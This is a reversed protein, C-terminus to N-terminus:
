YTMRWSESALRDAVLTGEFESRRTVTVAEGADQGHLIVESLVLGSEALIKGWHEYTRAQANLMALMALDLQTEFRHAKVDLLAIDDILIVSKDHMAARIHRLITRCSEDPRMTAQHTIFERLDLATGPLDQLIVRGQLDPYMSKLLKCQQGLGGGVDVFFVAGLRDQERLVSMLETAAKEDLWTRVGIRHAGMFDHFYQSNTPHHQLWEYLTMPKSNHGRTFFTETQSTSLKYRNRRLFGPLALYALLINDHRPDSRNLSFYTISFYLTMGVSAMYRLLRVLLNRDPDAGTERSIEDTTMPEISTSLITFINLDVGIRAASIELESYVLRQSTDVPAELECLLKNAAELIRRRLSHNSRIADPLPDDFSALAQLLASIDAAGCASSPDSVSSSM